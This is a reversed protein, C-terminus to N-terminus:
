KNDNVSTIWSADNYGELVLPFKDYILGFSRTRKLFGLVRGIVKWLNTSPNYTYRLLRCVTFVIDPRTCHMAYM